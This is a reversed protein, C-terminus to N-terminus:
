NRAGSEGRGSLSASLYNEVLMPLLFKPHRRLMANERAGYALIKDVGRHGGHLACTRRHIWLSQHRTLTLPNSKFVDKDCKAATM